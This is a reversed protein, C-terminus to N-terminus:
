ARTNLKLKHFSGWLISNVLGVQIQVEKSANDIIPLTQRFDGCFVVVKGGFPLESEMIDKLLSDFAKITEHKAM